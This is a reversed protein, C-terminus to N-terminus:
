EPVDLTVIVTEMSGDDREYTVEYSGPEMEDLHGLPTISHIEISEDTERLEHEVAELANRVVLRGDQRVEITWAMPNGYTGVPTRIVTAVRPQFPEDERQNPRRAELCTEIEVRGAFSHEIVCNPAPAPADARPATTACAAILGATAFPIIALFAVRPPASPPM